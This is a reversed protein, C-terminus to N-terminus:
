VLCVPHAPLSGAAQIRRLRRTGRGASSAVVRAGGLVGKAVGAACLFL